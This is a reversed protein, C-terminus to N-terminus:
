GLGNGREKFYVTGCQSEYWGEIARTGTENTPVRIGLM